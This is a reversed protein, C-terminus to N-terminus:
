LKTLKFYIKDDDSSVVMNFSEGYYPNFGIKTSAKVICETVMSHVISDLELDALTTPTLWYVILGNEIFLYNSIDTFIDQSNKMCLFSASCIGVEQDNQNYVPARGALYKSCVTSSEMSVNSTPISIFSQIFADVYLYYTLKEHKKSLKGASASIEDNNYIESTHSALDESLSLGQSYLYLPLCLSLCLARCISKLILM